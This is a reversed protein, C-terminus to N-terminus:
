EPTVTGRGDHRKTRVANEFSHSVHPMIVRTDNRSLPFDLIVTTYFIHFLCCYGSLKCMAVKCM